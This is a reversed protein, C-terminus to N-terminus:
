NKYYNNKNRNERLAFKAAVNEEKTVSLYDICCLVQINLKLIGFTIHLCITKELYRRVFLRYYNKYLEDKYYNVSLFM